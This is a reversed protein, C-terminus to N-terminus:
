MGSSGPVYNRQMVASRGTDLLASPTIDPVPTCWHQLKMMWFNCSLKRSCDTVVNYISRVGDQKIAVIDCDDSKSYSLKVGCFNFKVDDFESPYSSFMILQTKAANFILSHSSAFKNCTHLMLRRFSCFTLAILAIDDAYCVADAFHYRWFCGVGQKDLDALLDDIYITFLIPSLVGGQHIGNCISFKFVMGVFM